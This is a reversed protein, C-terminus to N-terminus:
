YLYIQMINHCKVLRSKFYIQMMILIYRNHNLFKVLVLFYIQMMFSVSSVFVKFIDADCYYPM